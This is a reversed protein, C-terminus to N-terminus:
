RPQGQQQQQQQQVVLQMAAEIPMHVVGASRDIWGWRSLEARENEMTVLGPREDLILTQRVGAITRPASPPVASWDVAPAHIGRLAGAYLIWALLVLVCSFAVAGALAGYPVRAPVVDDALRVTPHHRESM